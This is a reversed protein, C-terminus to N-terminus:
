LEGRVFRNEVYCGEFRYAAEVEVVALSRSDGVQTPGAVVIVIKPQNLIRGESFPDLQLEASFEEVNPVPMDKVANVLTKPSRAECRVNRTGVKSHPVTSNRRGSIDLKPHLDEELAARFSFQRREEQPTVGRGSPKGANM